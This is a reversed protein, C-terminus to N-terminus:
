LEEAKELKDFLEEAKKKNYEKLITNLKFFDILWWILLGGFTLFFWFFRKWRGVYAYHLNFLWFVIIVGTKRKKKYIKLLESKKKDSLTRFKSSLFEELEKMMLVDTRKTM